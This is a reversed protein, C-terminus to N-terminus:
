EVGGPGGQSVDQVRSGLALNLIRRTQDESEPWLHGYTDLTVKASAHGLRTQVVKVSEGGAILLSAYYHRLHHPTAWEPTGARRRATAWAQRFPHEQIPGGRNNTFVFGLDAPWKSLHQSLDGLTVDAVPVTRYSSSTKLPGLDVGGPTRVLQQDVTIMRRLFDVRGVTLGFLEGPRLGTTAGTIVLARYRPHIADALALVEDTALVELTRAPPRKPLKVAGCPSTAILRDRVAAAFVARVKGFVVAVTTPALRDSLGRVMAQLESPRIMSLPRDGLTPYIHLRLQQEVSIGTAGRHPQSLRWAEAYERFSVQGARPDVYNHRIKSHEVENLHEEAEWRRDFTQSRSSGEPTRWRARWRGNRKDISSM